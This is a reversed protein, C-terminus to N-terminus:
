ADTCAVHFIDIFVINIVSIVSKVSKGLTHRAQRKVFSFPGQMALAELPSTTGALAFIALCLAWINKM